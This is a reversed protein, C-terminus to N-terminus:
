SLEFALGLGTLRLDRKWEDVCEQSVNYFAIDKSQRTGDEKM